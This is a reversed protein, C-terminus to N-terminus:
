EAGGDMKAGCHCYEFGDHSEISGCESCKYRVFTDDIRIWRGHRVSELEEAPREESMIIAEAIAMCTESMIKGIRDPHMKRIAKAERQLKEVLDDADILRMKRGKEALASIMM